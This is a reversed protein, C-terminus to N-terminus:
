KACRRPGTCRRVAEDEDKLVGEGNAYSFGLNNQADAHGQEAALQYWRM